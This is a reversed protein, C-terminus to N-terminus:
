LEARAKCMALRVKLGAVTLHGLQVASGMGSANGTCRQLRKSAFGAATALNDAKRKMVDKIAPLGVLPATTPRGHACCFCLQTAQLAAILDCCQTHVLVDGFMIASRCAKSKLVRLVGPPTTVSGRTEHLQHLFM